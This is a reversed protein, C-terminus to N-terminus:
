SNPGSRDFLDNAYAIPLPESPFLLLQLAAIGAANIAEHNGRPEIARGLRLFPEHSAIFNALWSETQLPTVRSARLCAMAQLMGVLRLAVNTSDWAAGRHRHMLPETHRILEGARDAVAPSQTQDFLSGIAPIVGRMRMTDAMTETEDSASFPADFKQNELVDQRWRATDADYGVDEIDLHAAGHTGKV